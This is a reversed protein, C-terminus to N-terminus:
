DTGNPVFILSYYFRNSVNKSYRNGYCYFTDNDFNQIVWCYLM